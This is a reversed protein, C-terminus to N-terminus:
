GFCTFTGTTCWVSLCSQGCHSAHVCATALTPLTHPATPPPAHDRHWPHHAIHPSMYSDVVRLKLDSTNSFAYAIPRLADLLALDRHRCRLGSSSYTHFYTNVTAGAVILPAHVNHFSDAAFFDACVRRGVDRGVRKTMAYHGHYALAVARGNLEKEARANARDRETPNPHHQGHYCSAAQADPLDSCTLSEAAARRVGCQSWRGCATRPEPSARRKWAQVSRAREGIDFAEDSMRPTHTWWAHIRHGGHVGAYISTALLLPAASLAICLELPM